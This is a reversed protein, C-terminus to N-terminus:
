PRGLCIFDLRGGFLQDSLECDQGRPTGDIEPYDICVFALNDGFLDQSLGCSEEGPGEAAVSPILTISLALAAM